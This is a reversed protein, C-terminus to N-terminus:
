LPTLVLLCSPFMLLLSLSTDEHALIQWKIDDSSIEIIQKMWSSGAYGLEIWSLLNAFPSSSLPAGCFAVRLPNVDYSYSCIELGPVAAHTDTLPNYWTRIHKLPKKLM